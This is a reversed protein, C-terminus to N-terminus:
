GEPFVVRPKKNSSEQPDIRNESPTLPIRLPTETSLPRTQEFPVKFPPEQWTGTYDSPSFSHDPEPTTTASPTGAPQPAYPNNMSSVSSSVSTAPQGYYNSATNSRSGLEVNHITSKLLVHRGTDTVIEIQVGDIYHIEGVFTNGQRTTVKDKRDKLRTRNTSYYHLFGKRYRIIDGSIETIRVDGIVQGNHFNLRDAWARPELIALGGLLLMAALLFACSRVVDPSFLLRPRNM